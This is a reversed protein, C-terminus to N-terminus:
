VRNQTLQAIITELKVIVVTMEQTKQSNEVEIAFEMIKRSLDLAPRLIKVAGDLQQINMQPMASNTLQYVSKIAENLSAEYSFNEEKQSKYLLQAFAICAHGQLAHSFLGKKVHEQISELINTMNQLSSEPHMLCIEIAKNFYVEAEELRNEVVLFEAFTKFFSSYYYHDYQNKEAYSIADRSAQELEDSRTYENQIGIKRCQLATAVYNNKFMASLFRDISTNESVIAVVKTIKRLAKELLVWKSVCSLGETDADTSLAMSEMNGIQCTKTLAFISKPDRELEETLLPKIEQLTEMGKRTNYSLDILETRAGLDETQISQFLRKSHDYIRELRNADGKWKDINQFTYGLFKLVMGVFFARKDDKSAILEATFTELDESLVIENVALCLDRTEAFRNEQSADSAQESFLYRIKLIEKLDIETFGNQACEIELASAFLENAKVMSGYISRGSIYFIESLSPLMEMAAHKDSLHIKRFNAYAKQLYDQLNKKQEPELTVLHDFLSKAKSLLETCKEKYKHLNEPKFKEIAEGSVSLATGAIQTTPYQEPSLLGSAFSSMTESSRRVAEM